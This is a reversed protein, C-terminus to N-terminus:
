ASALEQERAEYAATVAKLADGEFMKPALAKINALRIPDAKAIKDIAEKTTHAVKKSPASPDDLFEATPLGLLSLLGCRKAQSMAVEIAGAYESCATIQLTTGMWQGDKMLMTTVKVERGNAETPQLLLVGYNMLAPRLANLVGSLSETDDLTGAAAVALTVAKAVEEFNHSMSLAGVSIQNDSM